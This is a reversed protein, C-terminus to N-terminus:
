LKPEKFLWGFILLVTAIGVFFAAVPAIVLALITMVVWGFVIVVSIIVFFGVLAILLEIM